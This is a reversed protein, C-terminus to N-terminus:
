GRARRVDERGTRLVRGAASLERPAACWPTLVWSGTAKEPDALADLLGVAHDEFEGERGLTVLAVGVAEPTAATAVLEPEGGDKVRYIRFRNREDRPAVDEWPLDEPEAYPRRTRVSAPDGTAHAAGGSRDV